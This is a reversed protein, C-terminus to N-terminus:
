AGKAPKKVISIQRVVIGEKAFDASASEEIGVLRQGNLALAVKDLGRGTIIIKDLSSCTCNITLETPSSFEILGLFHYPYSWFEGKRSM